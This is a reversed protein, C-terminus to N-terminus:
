QNCGVGITWTIYLAGSIILMVVEDDILHSSVSVFSATEYGANLQMIITRDSALTLTTLRNNLSYDYMQSMAPMIVSIDM